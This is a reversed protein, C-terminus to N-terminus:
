PNFDRREFSGQDLLRFVLIDDNEDIFVFAIKFKEKVV